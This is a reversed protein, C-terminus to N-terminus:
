KWLGCSILGYGWETQEGIQKGHLANVLDRVMGAGGAPKIFFCSGAPIYSTMNGPAGQKLDWGGRRVAKGAIVTHLEVDIGELQGQWVTQGSVTTATTLGPLPENEKEGFDADSLLMLFVGQEDGEPVPCAPMPVDNVPEIAISAMRGEAGFRIFPTDQVHEIFASEAWHPLGNMIVSVSMDEHLRLHSTQYLMGQEVTKSEGSVQIGLRPEHQLWDKRRQVGECNDQPTAGSLLLELLSQTVGDKEPMKAGPLPDAMEPLRVHGLDCHVVSGPQLRRYQCVDPEKKELLLVPWPYVPEDDFFLQVTGFSLQGTNRSDGLLDNISNGQYFAEEKRFAQWDVDLAEGLRTRIAGAITKISPPFLSELRDAGPAGHPRSERFYWSDVPTFLIRYTQSM